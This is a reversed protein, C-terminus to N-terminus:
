NDTSSVGKQCSLAAMLSIGISIISAARPRHAAVAKLQSSGELFSSPGFDCEASFALHIVPKYKINSGSHVPVGEKIGDM